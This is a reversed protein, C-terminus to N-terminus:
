KYFIIVFFLSLCHRKNAKGSHARKTNDMNASKGM